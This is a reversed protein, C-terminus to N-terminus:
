SEFFGAKFQNFYEQYQGPISEACHAAYELLKKHWSIDKGFEILEDPGEAGQRAASRLQASATLLAMDCIVCEIDGPRDRMLRFDIKDAIPQLEKLVFDDDGFRTTSLLAPSINQMREQVTVVRDAESEWTPQPCPTYPVLCSPAAQKMDILLHKKPDDGSRVLFCYRKLGLSGTGAVRAAADLVRFHNFLRPQRDLWTQVHSMLQKRLSKDLPFLRLLDIKLRLKDDKLYTRQRVLDKQRRESVQDLFIRVIGDATRPELYRAKGKALTTAYTSLFRNVAQHTEKRRVGLADFGTVISAIMRTLEWCAPALIAEDFDNVDFYVMRNDGKYSGFNELHLDGCVWVRPSHPLAKNDLDQYFLHCTGRFFRFANEAMAQYKLATFAPIRDKNFARVRHAIDSM